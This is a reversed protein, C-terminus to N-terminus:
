ICVLEVAFGGLAAAERSSDAPEVARKFPEDNAPAVNYDCGIVRPRGHKPPAVPALREDELVHRSDHPLNPGEIGAKGGPLRDEQILATDIRDAPAKVLGNLRQVVQFVDMEDHKPEPPVIIELQHPSPGALFCEFIAYM